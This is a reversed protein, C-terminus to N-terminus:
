VKATKGPIWDGEIIVSSVKKKGGLLEMMMKAALRGLEIRDFSMRSLWPWKTRCDNRESCSALGFDRGPCFGELAAANVCWEALSQDSTIIATNGKRILNSLDGAKECYEEPEFGLLFEEHRINSKTTTDRMGRLKDMVSPHCDEWERNGVFVLNKYGLDIVQQTAASACAYENRYICNTGKRISSDIWIRRPASDEAYERIKEPVHMIFIGELFREGLAVGKEPDDQPLESASIVSLTYGSEQMQENIGIIVPFEYPSTYAGSMIVGVHKTSKCRMARAAANPRYGLEKAIKRVREARDATSPWNEKNKGNLIRSVTNVSVKSLEAIEKLTAM